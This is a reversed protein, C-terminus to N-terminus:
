PKKVFIRVSLTKSLDKGALKSECPENLLFVFKENENMETFTPSINAVDKKLKERHVRYTTLTILFHQETEIENRRTPCIQQNQELGQHRGKGIM